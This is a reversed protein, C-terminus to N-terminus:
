LHGLRRLGDCADALTERPDRFEVGLDTRMPENDADPMRTYYEMASATMPTGLHLRDQLRGFGRLAADPVPV